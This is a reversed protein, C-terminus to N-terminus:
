IEGENNTSAHTTSTDTDFGESMILALNPYESENQSVYGTFHLWKLSNRSGSVPLDRTYEVAATVFELASLIREKRLSGRFVRVEITDENETNIASYHGDAQRGLKVKNVLHGKDAFTAFRSGTRGAIRGVQRQNDYVLKMFRLEHAQVKLIGDAEPNGFAERSVHVHFGCSDTDWSRFGLSRLKRLGEWPFDKKYSELTHPHTVIEFGDYLSGDEKMYVRDGFTNYVSDAGDSITYDGKREVELEFGLYYRHGREPFFHPTPKYGYDHIYDSSTESRCDHDDSEMYSTDCDDCYHICDDYCPECYTTGYHRYPEAYSETYLEGCNNCEWVDDAGNMEKYRELETRCVQGGNILYNATMSLHERDHGLVEYILEGRARGIFTLDCCLCVWSCRIHAARPQANSDLALRHAWRNSDFAGGCFECKPDPFTYTYTSTHHFPLALRSNNLTEGFERTNDQYRLHAFQQGWCRACRLRQEAGLPEWAWLYTITSCLPCASTEVYGFLYVPDRLDYDHTIPM